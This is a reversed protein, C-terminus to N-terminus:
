IYKKIKMTLDRVDDESVQVGVKGKWGNDGMISSGMLADTELKPLLHIHFHEIKDGAAVLYVKEIGKVTKELIKSIELALEIVCKAQEVNLKSFSDVHVITSVVIHGYKIADVTYSAIAHTNKKVINRNKIECLTCYKNKSMSCVGQM